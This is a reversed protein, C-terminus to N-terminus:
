NDEFYEPVPLMDAHFDYFGCAAGNGMNGNTGDTGGSEPYMPTPPEGVIKLTDQYSMGAKRVANFKSIWENIKSVMQEAAKPTAAVCLNWMEFDSYQGDNTIFIIYKM